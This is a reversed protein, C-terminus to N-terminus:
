EIRRTWQTVGGGRLATSFSLGFLRLAGGRSGFRLIVGLHKGQHAHVAGSRCGGPEDGSRAARIRDKAGRGAGLKAADVKSKLEGRMTAKYLIAGLDAIPLFFFLGYM